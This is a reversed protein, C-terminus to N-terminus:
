YVPYRPPASRRRVAFLRILALGFVFGGVHAFYAVGGGGGVPNTLNASGFYVQELFWFGLLFVAPVEIITVFFVIFILSLVRAHPYLVIYGGLVAAIAGSAGLTPAMSNPGVAVQAALAVLGGLLYFIAYRVRGMAEEVNPGFIALFVMNGAIHLINGHLFMATFASLWTNVQGPFAGSKCKSVSVVGRETVFENAPREVLEKVVTCYKGPHTFDYPIASDHLVTSESPGNIFSGGHRLSLLYAIVNIVVLAVTILPFRENPINDKLPIM